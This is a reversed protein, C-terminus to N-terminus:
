VKIQKCVTLARGLAQDMNYYKFDALRGCIYLNPITELAQYYKAHLAKSEDTLIPYYPEVETNEAYPVPFEYALSTAGPADQSLFKRYETIRTYGPAAPYAVLPADQFSETHETKWEFRLSRYPLAGYACGFFEDIAGTYIVPISLPKGSFLLKGDQVRLYDTAETQMQIEIGPHNLLNEFFKTYGENPLMQYPDDFYGDKYSFLVPVRKLVSPDIESPSVGWQKATYLSYDKEFLFDAYARIVPNECELLEVITAKNRGPYAKEIEAKLRAADQPPYYDDITQYNFPSPTYKGEMFVKCTIEFPTWQAYKKMYAQLEESYTHFVHPGYKHVLIGNEDKYDYMNGGIHSRRELMLVRKGCDQSLYRAIVSGVLGTGVILADFRGIEDTLNKGMQSESGKGHHM